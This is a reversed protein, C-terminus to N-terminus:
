AAPSLDQLARVADDYGDADVLVDYTAAALGRVSSFDRNGGTAGYTAAAAVLGFVAGILVSLLLVSLFGSTTVTFLGFLLGILLGVWAGTLLGRLLVKPWTLRGTVSEVLQLDSGVIVTKEVPFGRDSLHDVVRQADAYDGSALLRRQAGPSQATSLTLRSSSPTAM